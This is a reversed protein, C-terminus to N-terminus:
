HRRLSLSPSNINQYFLIGVDTKAIGSITRNKFTASNNEIAGSLRQSVIGIHFLNIENWAGISSAIGRYLAGDGATIFLEGSAVIQPASRTM